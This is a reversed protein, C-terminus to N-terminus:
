EERLHYNVDNLTASKRLSLGRDLHAEAAARLAEKPANSRDTKRQYHLVM